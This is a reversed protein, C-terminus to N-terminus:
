PASSALRVAKEAAEKMTAATVLSLGSEDLMRRGEEANTGELRVVVPVDIKVKKAAEIIGQAIVDCRAIGGYINVLVSRVNKDSLLLKFAEEVQAATAGGGVDLFNAPEGGALKILDMTAMALGAGNVMCGVTGGIHVYSIGVERARVEVWKEESIDRMEALAKQRFLANDDISLKADLALLRKDKTVVLPNIEVLSADKQLFLKGLAALTAAFRQLLKGSLGLRQAMTRGMWGSIGWEPEFHLRVIANPKTRALEEIEVGGEASALVVPLEAGRDVTVALYMEREIEVGQEVLVRRVVVGDPDSQYTVLRKGLLSEAAKRVEGLGRCIRIGGAKGRGGVLVQAKVAFVEGGIREAASVAEEVSEAVAGRPTSIGYERFVEKAQFEHLKM